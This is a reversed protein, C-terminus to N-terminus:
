YAYRANLNHFMAFVHRELQSIYILAEEYDLILMMVCIALLHPLHFFPLPLLGIDGIFM